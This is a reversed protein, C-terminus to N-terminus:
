SYFSEKFHKNVNQVGSIQLSYIVISQPIGSSYKRDEDTIVIIPECKNGAGKATSASLILSYNTYKQLGTLIANRRPATVIEKGSDGAPLEAYTVTYNLIIGNQHDAKVENWQVFISTSSENNGKVNTPPANPIAIVVVEIIITKCYGYCM